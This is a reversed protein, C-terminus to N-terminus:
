NSPGRRPKALLSRILRPSARFNTGQLRQLAEGIDMVGLADARDLIGLTGAVLLGRERAVRRAKTEDLLVLKLSHREALTIVEAEGRDLGLGQVTDGTNEIRLWDAPNSIWDRVEQPAGPAQLEDHVARPVLVQSFLKALVEALGILVLYNIPSTNSVATM